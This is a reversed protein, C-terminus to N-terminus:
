QRARPISYATAASPPIGIRAACAQMSKKRNRCEVLHWMGFPRIRADCQIAVPWGDLVEDVSLDTRFGLRSCLPSIAKECAALLRNGNTFHNLLVIRGDPRCVRIMERMVARHDPVATIVYAAVVVDFSDDEFDMKSADMRRLSVHGLALAEARKRAEELMKESLDIGTVECHRPYLPLLLGTGVGVELVREGPQPSLRAMAAERGSQFIRGFLRDYVRAYASYIREISERNVADGM